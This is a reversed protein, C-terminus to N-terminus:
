NFIWYKRPRFTSFTSDLTELFLWMMGRKTPTPRKILDFLWDSTVLLLRAFILLLSCLYDFKPFHKISIVHPKIKFNFSFHVTKWVFIWSVLKNRAEGPWHRRDRPPSPPSQEGLLFIGLRSYRKAGEIHSFKKMNRQSIWSHLM